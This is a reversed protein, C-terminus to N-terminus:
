IRKIAKSQAFLGLVSSYNYMITSIIHRAMTAICFESTFFGFTYQRYIYIGFAYLKKVGFLASTQISVGVEPIHLFKFM